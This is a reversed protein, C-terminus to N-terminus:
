RASIVYGRRASALGSLLLFLWSRGIVELPKRLKGTFAIFPSLVAIIFFAIFRSLVAIIFAIFLSLVAIIFAIFLSLVAIIFFAIFLSLVAIIFAIFRSLM